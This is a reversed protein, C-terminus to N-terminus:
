RRCLDSSAEAHQFAQRAAPRLLDMMLVKNQAGCRTGLLVVTAPFKGLMFTTPLFMLVFMLPRIAIAFGNWALVTKRARPRAPDAPAGGTM